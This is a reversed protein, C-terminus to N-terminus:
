ARGRRFVYLISSGVYCKQGFDPSNYLAQYIVMDELTESHKGVGSVFYMKGKYHKYFGIKIMNDKM